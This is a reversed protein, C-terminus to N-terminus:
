ISIRFPKFPVGGGKYFKTLFEYFTLRLAQIMVVMLELTLTFVNIGLFGIVGLIIGREMMIGVVSAFAMHAIAFGALRAYSLFNTSFSLISEILLSFGIALGEKEIFSKSFIAIMSIILGIAPLYTWPTLGLGPIKIAIPIFPNDPIITFYKDGPAMVALFEFGFTILSLFGVLGALGHEGLIVETIHGNRINIFMNLLMGITIEIIGFYLAIKLLWVIIVTRLESHMWNPILGPWLPEFPFGELLMFSGTLLGFFIASIGAYILLRGISKLPIGMLDKKSSKLFLIGMLLVVIGQGWDPFMYGFMITWLTGAIITPDIERPDPIGYQRILSEYARFIKPNKYVTPVEEDKEPDAYTVIIKGGTEEKIGQFYKNLRPIKDKPVWGSVISMMKSELLHNQAWAIKYSTQIAKRLYDAEELFRAKEEELRNKIEEIGKKTKEIEEDIWNLAEESEAPINKPLSIENFGVTELFKEVDGKLEVMGGVYLLAKDESFDIIKYFFKQFGKLMSEVKPIKEKEIVGVKAFIHRFEGIDGPRVGNESLLKVIPKANELEQVYGELKKLKNILGKLNLEYLKLKSELTHYPVKSTIEGEYLKINPCGEPCVKEYLSKFRSLLDMYQSVDEAVKERFGIIEGESLKKLEVVGLKGLGRLIKEEYDKLVVVTLKKVPVIM